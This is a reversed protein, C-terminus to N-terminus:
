EEEISSLIARMKDIWSFDICELYDESDYEALAEKIVEYMKKSQAMLRADFNNNCSDAVALSGGFAVIDTSNIKWREAKREGETFKPWRMAQIFEKHMDDSIGM